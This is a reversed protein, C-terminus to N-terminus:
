ENNLGKLYDKTYADVIDAVLPHRVVDERCFQTVGVGKLHQLLLMSHILGSEDPKLDSQTADGNIIMKCNDGLRTLFMQMQKRTANQAEDLIVLCNKFTRGRMFAIPAIEITGKDLMSNIDEINMTDYLADYIPRMYPDVKETMDGPLFGLNEGAEIAPRAIILQRIANKGAFKNHLMEVGIAVALFTKGTGAPGIGFTINNDAIVKMYHKQNDSRAEIRLKPTKIIYSM